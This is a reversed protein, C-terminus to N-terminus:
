KMSKYRNINSESLFEYADSIKQFIKTADASKNIDPHYEKAKKRYALKIQYTDSEYGVALVDCSQEFKNKFDITPNRYAQGNNNGTNQGYGGFNGYTNYGSNSKQSNQYEHWQKFRQEWERQQQAQRQQQQQRKEAEETRKYKVGYESFSKFQNDMGHILNNARDFLFETIMYKVYKLYSIFKTGLIPFIIFFMLTVLVLPNFLLAFGLPGVFIFFLLCGGMGLFGLIGKAITNVVIVIIEIISILIGVIISILQALAQLLKGSIKKLGNM